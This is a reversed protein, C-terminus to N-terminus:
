KMTSNWISQYQFLRAKALEPSELKVLKVKGESDKYFDLVSNDYLYSFVLPYSNHPIIKTERKEFIDRGALNKSFDSNDFIIADANKGKKVRSKIFDKEVEPGFFNMVAEFSGVCWIFDDVKYPINLYFDTLSNDEYIESELPIKRLNGVENLKDAIRSLKRGKVAIKRSINGLSNAVYIEPRKGVQAIFSKENLSNLIKYIGAQSFGTKNKLYAADLGENMQLLECFVIAEGLSLGLDELVGRIYNRIKM